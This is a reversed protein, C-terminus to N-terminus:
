ELGVGERALYEEFMKRAKRPDYKKRSKFVGKLELIDKAPEVVMKGKEVTVTARSKKSFGLERRIKAPISIQGQSTISVTYIM